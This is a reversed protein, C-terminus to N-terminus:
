RPWENSRGTEDQPAPEEAEVWRGAALGRIAELGPMLLYACGKTRVVPPRTAVFYPPSGEIVVRGSSVRGDPTPAAAADGADCDGLLYDRDNGLRFANGDICWQRQIVEFQREFSANFCIFLLGRDVGDDSQGEEFKDAPAGYPIGRRIIRHRRSMQGDWGLADRPNTRRIHAGIPCSFGSSDDPLYRFDNSPDGEAVDGLYGPAHRPTTVIPMGDRWRGVVKAAMLEYLSDHDLPPDDNRSAGYAIADEHLQDRFGFIDQYLKRYVMYSGNRLLDSAPGSVIQGDEDEYGHVFEGPKLSDWDGDARPVGNGRSESWPTGEIAPQSFGDAWGFHERRAALAQAEQSHVLHLEYEDAADLISAVEGSYADQEGDRAHITVLLHCRDTGIGEDWQSPANPGRDDLMRPARERIPEQFSAPLTARVRESVGLAVLGPYTVAVNTTTAPGPKVWTTADQVEDVLVGLFDRGAAADTIEFFLYTADPFGYARLINGQIDDFELLGM